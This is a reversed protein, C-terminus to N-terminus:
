SLEPRGGRGSPRRGAKGGEEKGGERRGSRDDTRGPSTGAITRARRGGNERTVTAARVPTATTIDTAPPIRETDLQRAPTRPRGASRSAVRSAAAAGSVRGNRM